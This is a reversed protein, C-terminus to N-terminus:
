EKNTIKNFQGIDEKRVILVDDHGDEDTVTYLMHNEKLKEFAEHDTMLATEQVPLEKSLVKRMKMVCSTNNLLERKM